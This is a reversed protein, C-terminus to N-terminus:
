HKKRTTTATRRRIRRMRRTRRKGGDSEHENDTHSSSESAANSSSSSTLNTMPSRVDPYQCRRTSDGTDSCHFSHSINGSMKPVSPGIFERIGPGMLSVAVPRAASATLHAVSETARRNMSSATAAAATAAAATASPARSHAASLNVTVRPQPPAASPARNHAALLNVTVRPQPPAAAAAAAAAASPRPHVLLITKPNLNVSASSRHHPRHYSRTHSTAPPSDARKRKTTTVHIPQHHLPAKWTKEMFKRAQKQTASLHRAPGAMAGPVTMFKFPPDHRGAFAGRAPNAVPAHQERTLNPVSLLTSEAGVNIGYCGSEYFVVEWNASPDASPDPSPDAKDIGHVLDILQQQKSKLVPFKGCMLEVVRDKLRRDMVLEVMEEMMVHDPDHLPDILDQMDINLTADYSEEDLTLNVVLNFQFLVFRDNQLQRATSPPPMGNGFSRNRINFRKCPIYHKKPSFSFFEGSTFNSQRKQNKKSQMIPDMPNVLDFLETIEHYLVSYLHNVMDNLNFMQSIKQAVSVKPNRLADITEDKKQDIDRIVQDVNVKFSREFEPIIGELTEVLIMRAEAGAVRTEAESKKRSEAEMISVPCTLKNHGINQCQSCMTTLMKRPKSQRKLADADVASIAAKGDVIEDTLKKKLDSVEQKRLAIKRFWGDHPGFVGMISRVIQEPTTDNHMLSLIVSELTRSLTPFCLNDHSVVTLHKPCKKAKIVRAGIVSAHFMSTAMVLFGNKPLRDGRLGDLGTPLPPPLAKGFSASVKSARPAPPTKPLVNPRLPPLNVLKIADLGRQTSLGDILSPKPSTGCVLFDRRGSASAVPRVTADSSSSSGSSVSPLSESESM